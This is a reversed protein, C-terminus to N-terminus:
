RILEYGSDESVRECKGLGRVLYMIKLLSIKKIQPCGESILLPSVGIIKKTSLGEIYILQASELSQYKIHIVRRYQLPCM